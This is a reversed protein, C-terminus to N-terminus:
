EDEDDNDDDEDPDALDDYSEIIPKKKGSRMAANFAEQAKEDNKVTLKMGRQPELYVTFSNGQKASVTVQLVGQFNITAKGEEEELCKEKLYDIVSDYVTCWIAIVMHSYPVHLKYRDSLTSLVRSEIIYFTNPSSIANAFEGCIHASNGNNNELIAKEEAVKDAEGDSHILVPTFNGITENEYEEKSAESNAVFFSCRGALNLSPIDKNECMFKYAEMFVQEFIIALAAHSISMKYNENIRTEALDLITSVIEQEGTTTGADEYRSLYMNEIIDKGSLQKGM